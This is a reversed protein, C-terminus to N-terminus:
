TAVAPARRAPQRRRRVASLAVAVVYAAAIAVPADGIRGYLTPVRGIPVTAIMVHSEDDASMWGRVRGHPDFAASSAWRVPRVVSFGGEIARSRAIETHYPDIGRWDSSPVFVLEAGLRAHAVAMTPFDYDYCIAGAVRGYPRDLVRLPATGRRSPEGPVPHHKEYEELVEGEAGVFAYKNAFFLRDGPLLVGYALVLDVGHERAFRKGREVLPREGEPRVVTAVENWVVLQAGRVAAVRSREFLAETNAALAEDSPLGQEGLGVDTTVAAVRATRRDLEGFLRVSGAAFVVALAAALAVFHRAHRVPRDAVALLALGSAVWAMLFGIGPVGLVAGLQLLALSDTQTSAGSGWTGLESLGYGSWELLAVAAPYAYLAAVEGVRRRVVDWGMVLLFAGIAAPVSFIFLMPAPVPPTVMKWAQLSTAVLLTGALALRGRRDPRRAAHILLPVAAIWAFLAVGWRYGSAAVLVLGIALLAGDPFRAWFPRPSTEPPRAAQTQAM